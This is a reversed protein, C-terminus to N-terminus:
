SASSSNRELRTVQFHCKSSKDANLANLRQTEAEAIEKSRVVKVVYITDEFRANKHHFQDIRIIAYVHDFKFNPQLETM